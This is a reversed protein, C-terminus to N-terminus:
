LLPMVVVRRHNVLSHIADEVVKGLHDWCVADCENIMWRADDSLWQQQVEVVAVHGCWCDILPEDMGVRHRGAPHRAM